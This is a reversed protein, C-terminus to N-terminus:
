NRCTLGTVASRCTIGGFTTRRGYAWVRAKAEITPLPPGPDGAFLVPRGRGHAQLAVRKDNPDGAQCHIRRPPPKLGSKVGCEMSAQNYDGVECGGSMDRS